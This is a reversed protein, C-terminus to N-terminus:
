QLQARQYVVRGAVVTAVVQATAIDNVPCHFLDRDVVTFDAWYGAEFRGKRDEQFAALAAWETFGKIAERRTLKQDARFGAPPQGDVGRTTVAAYLGAFPNVREVPFDSGLALPLGRQVFARWAYAGAVREAGLRTPAWPMDSTCHTPQMSPIVGLNKFLDFDAPDVIQAHEMRFRREKANVKLDSCVRQLQDLVWRNAQDGIAHTNVQFGAQIALRLIKEMSEDSTLQLGQTAADAYPAKLWAGRSGLAGDAYVKVSRVTLLGNAMDSRTGRKFEAQLWDLDSAALMAYVRIPLQGDAALEELAQLTLQDVGADHVATLGQAAVYDCALKLHRKTAELSEGPLKVLGMARDILVGTPGEQNRMITGGPPDNADNLQSGQIAVGNVLAAHGDIRKLFVPHNPVAQSLAQHHPFDKIEWDNQDWGRGLIWTGEPTQQARERVREIVEVYSRTGVLDVAEISAGLSALHGHADILGPLVYGSQLDVTEDIRGLWEDPVAPGMYVLIGDQAIWVAEQAAGNPQGFIGNEFLTVKAQSLILALLVGIM